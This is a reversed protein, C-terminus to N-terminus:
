DIVPILDIDDYSVVDIQCSRMVDLAAKHKEPTTGACGEEIVVIPVENDFYAQTILVNSIVCIDTCFGVFVICDPKKDHFQTPLDLSGFTIKHIAKYYLNDCLIRSLKNPMDWGDDEYNDIICHKVPLKRGERSSLYEKDYHTDMTAYACEIPMEAINEIVKLAKQAEKSGLKGTIFDNQCDIFVFTTYDLNYEENKVKLLWM